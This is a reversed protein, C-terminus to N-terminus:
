ATYLTGYGPPTEVAGQEGAVAEVQEILAQRISLEHV